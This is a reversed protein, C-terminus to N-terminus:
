PKATAETTAAPRAVAADLAQFAADVVAQDVEGTVQEGERNGYHKQGSRGVRVREFKGGDYSVAANLIPAGLGTSTSPPVFTTVRLDTLKNLFDDVKARDADAAQGGEPTVRWKETDGDKVKEFTWTRAPGGTARTIRVRDMSFPRADFLEKKRYDDFPKTLDEALTTDLTFVMSRAVDRAYPQAGESRGIELVAQSSGAGAAIRMTPRDLGYKALDAATDEVISAMGATSLRTLLGEVTSYDARGKAPQEVTWDSGSRALRMTEAGRTLDLSDVKDREFKVVRKDRLDFPKKDFTTEIYSSVLFVKKEGPKMAYLDGQMPTKDGLHVEGSVDGEAKFAVKIRPEALGYPALDSANEEIVRSTELSAINTVLSSAETPDAETATPETMQWGADKKVLVTTEGGATVRVEQIRGSEVAFVKENPELGPAPKDSEVFYIYAGLGALVLVLALTSWLGRM